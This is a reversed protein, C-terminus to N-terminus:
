RVSQYPLLPDSQDNSRARLFVAFQRAVRWTSALALIFVGLAVRVWWRNVLPGSIALAAAAIAASALSTMVAWVSMWSFRDGTTRVVLAVRVGPKLAILIALPTLVLAGLGAGVQMVLGLLDAGAANGTALSSHPHGVLTLVWVATAAVGVDTLVGVRHMGQDTM